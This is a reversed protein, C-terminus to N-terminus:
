DRWDRSVRSLRSWENGKGDTAFSATLFKGGLGFAQIEVSHSVAIAGCESGQFFTQVSFSPLCFM